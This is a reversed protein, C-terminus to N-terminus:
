RLSSFIVVAFALRCTDRIRKWRAVIKVFPHAVMSKSDGFSSVSLSVRSYTHRGGRAGEM